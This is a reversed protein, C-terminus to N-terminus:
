ACSTCSACSSCSTGVQNNLKGEKKLQPEKFFKKYEPKQYQKKNNKGM